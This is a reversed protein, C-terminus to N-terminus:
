TTLYNKFCLISSFIKILFSIVMMEDPIGDFSSVMKLGRSDEIIKAALFDVPFNVKVGYNSATSM